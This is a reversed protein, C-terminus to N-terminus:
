LSNIGGMGGMNAMGGQGGFGGMGGMGQECDDPASLTFEWSDEVSVGENEYVLGTNGQILQARVQRVESLNLGETEIVINLLPAEARAPIERDMTSRSLIEEDANLLEVRVYGCPRFAGCTGPPGWLWDQLLGPQEVGDNDVQVPGVGITLRTDCALRVSEGEAEVAEGDANTVSLLELNPPDLSNVSEVLSIEDSSCSLFAGGLVLSLCLWVRPPTKVSCRNINEVM